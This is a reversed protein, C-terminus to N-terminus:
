RRSTGGSTVAPRTTTTTPPESTTTTPPQTVTTGPNPAVPPTSVQPVTTPAVQPVTTSSPPANAPTNEPAAANASGPHERAVVVGMLTTVGAAAVIATSTLRRITAQARQRSAVAMTPRRGARDDTDV